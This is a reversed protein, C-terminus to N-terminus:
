GMCYTKIEFGIQNTKTNKEYSGRGKCKKAFEIKLLIIYYKENLEQNKTM